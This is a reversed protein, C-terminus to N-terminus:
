TLWASGIRVPRGRAFGERRRGAPGRRARSARGSPGCRSSRSSSPIARGDGLVAHRHRLLDLEVIGNSFRPAFITRSTALLVESTAPSPVVVAVTSACAIKRSPVLITAAPIFGISRFRPMSLATATSTSSRPLCDLFVRVASPSRGPPSSRRWRRRSSRSSGRRPSPSPRCPPRRDGDFLGLAHLGREVHDLAHLEVAAVERGVEHGVGLAHLHHKSSASIRSCSFFILPMFSRSGSSSCTALCPWGIRITASSTSPSASAVSTTLLSRPVSCHAATLAGPKPSRRLAISWSM